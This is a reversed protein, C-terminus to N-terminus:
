AAPLAPLVEVTASLGVNTFIFPGDCEAPDRTAEVDFTLPGTESAVISGTGSMPAPPQCPDDASRLTDGVMKMDAGAGVFVVARCCNEGEGATTFSVTVTDGVRPEVPSISATITIGEDEFSWSAPGTQIM